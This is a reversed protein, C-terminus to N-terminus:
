LIEGVKCIKACRRGRASVAEQGLYSALRRILESGARAMWFREKGGAGDGGVAPSGEEANSRELTPSSLPRSRRHSATLMWRLKRGM